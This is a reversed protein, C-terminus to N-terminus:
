GRPAKSLVASTNEIVHYIASLQRVVLVEDGVTFEEDDMDPEVLIYHTQGHLDKLKAEAPLGRKATGRIVVAVKGIFRKTSVAETEDKPMIKAIGLGLVRTSPIAIMFAPVAMLMAPLYHGTIGEVFSQLIVGSLGFGTLFTIFLILAPVKGVCLWGLIQMMAGPAVLEPADIDADLDLDLDVDMDADFDPLDFDPLLSDVVGSLAIGFMLGAAEMVAIVLMLSIAITFPAVESAFLHELM